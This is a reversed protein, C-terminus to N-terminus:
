RPSTLPASSPFRVRARLKPIVPDKEADASTLSVYPGSTSVPGTDNIVTASRATGCRTTRFHNAPSGQRDHPVTPRTVPVVTLLDDTLTIATIAVEAPLEQPDLLKLLIVINTDRLGHAYEAPM